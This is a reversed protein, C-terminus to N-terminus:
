LVEAELESLYHDECDCMVTPIYNWQQVAIPKRLSYQGGSPCVPLGNRTIFEFHELQEPICGEIGYEAHMSKQISSQNVRCLTRSSSKKYSVAGLFILVALLFVSIGWFCAGAQTKWCYESM